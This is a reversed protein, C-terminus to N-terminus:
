FVISDKIERTASEISEAYHGTVVAGIMLAKVGTNVLHPIDSQTIKRQSPVIVPIDLANVISQYKLLDEFILASGYEEGPIISAEFADISSTNMSRLTEISYTSDGAVTKELELDLMFSPMHKLYVSYYHFGIKELEKLEAEHINELSGGPVIGVPGYFEKVLEEFFGLNEKLSGFTNGSARHEVNLHVKLADAGGAIAAKATEMNNSPLSVILSFEKEYLM